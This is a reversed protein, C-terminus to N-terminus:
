SKGRGVRLLHTLALHGLFAYERREEDTPACCELANLSEELNAWQYETDAELAAKWNRTLWKQANPNMVITYQAGVTKSAIHQITENLVVAMAANDAFTERMMELPKVDSARIAEICILVFQKQAHTLLDFKSVIRKIQAAKNGMPPAISIYKEM